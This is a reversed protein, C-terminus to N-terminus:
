NAAIVVTEAGPAPAEPAAPSLITATVALVLSMVGGALVLSDFSPLAFRPTTEPAFHTADTM